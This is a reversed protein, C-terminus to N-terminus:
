WSVKPEDLVLITQSSLVDSITQIEGLVVDRLHSPDQTRVFLAFDHEGTTMAVWEVGTIAGLREPLSKFSDQRVNILILAALGLGVKAPDIEARYGTIVGETELRRVRAYATARAVGVREGLVQISARGDNRLEDLLRRDIDDLAVQMSSVIVFEVLLLSEDTNKLNEQWGSGSKTL